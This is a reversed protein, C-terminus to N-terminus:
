LHTGHGCTCCRPSYEPAFLSRVGGEYSTQKPFPPRTSVRSLFMGDEAVFVFFESPWPVRVAINHKQVTALFTAPQFRPLIILPVGISLPALSIAVGGFSHPINMDPFVWM